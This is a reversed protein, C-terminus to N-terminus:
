EIKKIEKEAIKGKLYDVFQEISSFEEWHYGPWVGYLEHYRNRLAVVEPRQMEDAIKM